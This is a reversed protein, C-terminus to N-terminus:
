IRRYFCAKDAKIKRRDPLIKFSVGPVVSGWQDAMLGGNGWKRGEKGNLSSVM